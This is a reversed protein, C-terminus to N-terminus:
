ELLHSLRLRLKRSLMPDLPEFEDDIPMSISETAGVSDDIEALRESKTRYGAGESIRVGEMSHSTMYSVSDFVM